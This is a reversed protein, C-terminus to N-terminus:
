FEHTTLINCNYNNVDRKINNTWNYFHFMSFNTNIIPTKNYNSGFHIGITNISNMKYINKSRKNYPIKDSIYFKNPLETPIKNDLTNSWINCFGFVDIENNNIIFKKLTTDPIYLYEDIDCFIMYNHIDKGYRYIAHHMQGTQAHHEYKCNTNWYQYNWEILTVDNLDFVQKIEPTPIGNYYMYFQTVGQKKYYKYFLPFFIYDDKFLTTLSLENKTTNINTNIHELKYNNTKDKYKVTIEIESLETKYDYIIIHTPEIEDKIYETTVQIKNNNIKLEIDDKLYPTDYLPLILYIKNNKYFIDFFLYKYDILHFDNIKERQKSENTFYIRNNKYYIYICLLYLLCILLLVLLYKNKKNIFNNKKFNNIKFNNLKM